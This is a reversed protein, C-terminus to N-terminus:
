KIHKDSQILKHVFENNHVFHSKHVFLNLCSSHTSAIYAHVAAWVSDM